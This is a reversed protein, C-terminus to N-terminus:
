MDKTLVGYIYSFAGVMSVQLGILGVLAVLGGLFGAIMGFIKVLIFIAIVFALYLLFLGLFITWKKGYTLDNSKSLAETPNLGKDVVLPIALSWAIAIVYGPIFFFLMGAFVGMNIFGLTLFFEGMNKRYKPDFIETMSLEEGRAMKTMVGVMLGITTGVNLYPIWFTLGWLLVNVFLPLLYKIGKNIGEKIISAITLEM